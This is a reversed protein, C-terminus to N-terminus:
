NIFWNTHALIELHKLENYLEINSSLCISKNKLCLTKTEINLVRDYGGNCNFIIVAKKIKKNIRIVKGTPVIDLVSEIMNSFRDTLVYNCTIWGKNKSYEDNENIRKNIEDVIIMYYDSDNKCEYDIYHYGKILSPIKDNTSVKTDLILIINNKNIKQIAYGLELMVNSNVFTKNEYDYDPTIDCIFLDCENISETIKELLISNNKNEVDIIIDNKKNIENCVKEYTQYISEKNTSHAYFIKM